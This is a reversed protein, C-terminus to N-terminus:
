KCFEILITRLYASNEIYNGHNMSKCIILESNPIQHHIKKTHNLRIVDHEGALVLTPIQIRNLDKDSFHPEDIMMKLYPNKTKDYDNKMMLLENKKLGEPYLNAGAVILKSLVNPYFSAMMIGIIGGDSYGFVSVDKLDLARIFCVMDHAMDMYHFSTTMSSEGHNRSDILYITFQEKLASALKDFTHLNGSNGHIFIIPKGAGLKEYNISIGNVKIKM